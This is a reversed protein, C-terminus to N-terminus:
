RAVRNATPEPLLHLDLPRRGKYRLRERAEHEEIAMVGRLVGELVVRVPSTDGSAVLPIARSTRFVRGPRQIDELEAVVLVGTNGDPLVTAEFAWGPQYAVHALIGTV